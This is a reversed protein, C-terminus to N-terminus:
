NEIITSLRLLKSSIKLNASRAASLNVSVQVRRNVFRFAITGGREASEPDEGVLLVPHEHTTVLVAEFPIDSKASVFALHCAPTNDVDRIRRVVIPHKGVFESTVSEDLTRGFPDEGILCLQFPSNPTSFANEPWQVFQTFNYLFEAKMEYEASQAHIFSNAQSLLLLFLLRFISKLEFSNM